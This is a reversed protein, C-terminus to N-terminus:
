SYVGYEIRSLVEEVAERGDDHDLLDYPRQGGLARNPAHLWDIASARDEFVEEAKSFTKAVQFLRDSEVLNLKTNRALRRTYTSRSVGAIRTLSGTDTHLQTALHKIVGAPLGERIIVATGDREARLQLPKGGLLAMAKVSASSPRVKIQRQQSMGAEVQPQKM